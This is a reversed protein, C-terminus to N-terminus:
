RLFPLVSETQMRSAFPNRPADATRRGTASAPQIYNVATVREVEIALIVSGAAAVAEDSMAEPPESAGSMRMAIVATPPGIAETIIEAPGAPTASPYPPTHGM